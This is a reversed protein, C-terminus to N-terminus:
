RCSQSHQTTAAIICFFIYFLSPLFHPELFHSHCRIFQIIKKPPVGFGIIASPFRNGIVKRGKYEYEIRGKPIFIWSANPIIYNQWVETELNDCRYICIGKLKLKAWHSFMTRAKSFPPNMFYTTAKKNGTCKLFNTFYFDCKANEESACCDVKLEFLYQLKNFLEMPTEWCDRDIPKNNMM